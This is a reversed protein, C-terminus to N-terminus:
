PSPRTRSPTSSRMVRGPRLERGYRVAPVEVGNPLVQRYREGLTFGLGEAIRRMALHGEAMELVVRRSGRGAVHPLAGELAERGLGRGRGAPGLLLGLARPRRTVDATVLGLVEGTARDSVVVPAWPPGAREVHAIMAARHEWTWGHVRTVLGDIVRELARADGRQPSRLLLRETEVRVLGAVGRM